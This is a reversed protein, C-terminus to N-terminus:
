AKADSAADAHKLTVKGSAGDDSSMPNCMVVSGDFESRKHYVTSFSHGSRKSFRSLAKRPSLRGKYVVYGVYVAVIVVIGAVVVGVILGAHNDNSSTSASNGSAVNTAATTSSV